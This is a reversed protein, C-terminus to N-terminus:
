CRLELAFRFSINLKGELVDVAPILASLLGNDGEMADTAERCAILLPQMAAVLPVAKELEDRLSRCEVSGDDNLVKDLYKFLKLVREFMDPISNWRHKADMVIHLPPVIGDSRQAVILRDSLLRRASFASVVEHVAKLAAAATPVAKFADSISLDITHALCRVHHTADRHASSAELIKTCVLCETPHNDSGTALIKNSPIGYEENVVTSVVRKLETATHHDMVRRVGLAYSFRVWDEDLGVVSVGIVGRNHTSGAGHPPKWCDIVIMLADISRIKAKFDVVHETYLPMVHDKVITGRSVPKFGPAVESMMFKFGTREIFRLPNNDRLMCYAVARNARWQREATWEDIESKEPVDEDLKWDKHRSAIHSRISTLSNKKGVPILMNCAACFGGVLKNTEDRRQELHRWVPSTPKRDHIARQVRPPSQMMPPMAAGPVGQRVTSAEAVPPLVPRDDAADDEVRPRKSPTPRHLQNRPIFTTLGPMTNALLPNTLGGGLVGSRFPRSTLTHPQIPRM